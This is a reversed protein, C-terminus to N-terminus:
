GDGRQLCLQLLELEGHLLLLAVVLQQQVDLHPQLYLDCLVPPQQFPVELRGVRLFLSILFLPLLRGGGESCYRALTKCGREVPHNDGLDHFTPDRQPQGFWHPFTSSGNKFQVNSFGGM